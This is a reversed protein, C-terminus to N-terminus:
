PKLNQGDAAARVQCLRLHNGAFACMRGDPAFAVRFAYSDKEWQLEAQVKEKAVDWLTADHDGAVALWKGDPSFDLGFVASRPGLLHKREGTQMDWIRVMGDEPGGTAVSRGDPSFALAFVIGSAGDNNWEHKVKGTELEWVIVRQSKPGRGGAAVWKGDPSVAASRYQAM